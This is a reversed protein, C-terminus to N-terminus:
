TPNDGERVEDVWKKREEDRQAVGRQWSDSLGEKVGGDEGDEGSCSPFAAGTWFYGLYNGELSIKEEKKGKKVGRDRRRPGGRRKKESEFGKKQPRGKKPSSAQSRRKTLPPPVFSFGEENEKEPNKRKKSAKEWPVLTM